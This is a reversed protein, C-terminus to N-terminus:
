ILRYVVTNFIERVFLFSKIIKTKLSSKSDLWSGACMHIAISNLDCSQYDAFVNSRYIHINNNLLQEQDKYVLGENELIKVYVCPAPLQDFKNGDFFVHTDYYDLVRAVFPHAPIAGIIAAQIGFGSIMEICQKKHGNEETQRKILKWRKPNCEISSVFDACLYEDFSRRVLVDSDLYFGGEHYLAYARIYDAAFAWKRHNYADKVWQSSRIDFRQTDWKIIQYDPMIKKWGDIYKQYIEPIPEESLWCYHIKKPIM